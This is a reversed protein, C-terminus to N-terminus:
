DKCGDILRAYATEDYTLDVIEDAPRDAVADVVCSATGSDVGDSELQQRLYDFSGRRDCDVQLVGFAIVEDSVRALEETSLSRVKADICASYRPPADDGENAAAIVSRELGARDCDAAILGWPGPSSSLIIRKLDAISFRRSREIACDAAAPPSGFAAFKSRYGREFAGRDFSVFRVIRDAKWDGGQRAFRFEFRFGDYSGGEVAVIATATDGHVHIDSVLVSDARDYDTRDECLDDAFPAGANNQQELFVETVDESCYSPDTSTMAAEAANEIELSAGPSILRQLTFAVLLVGSAVAAARRWGGAERSRVIFRIALLPVAATCVVLPIWTALALADSWNELAVAHAAFALVWGGLWVWWPSALLWEAIRRM